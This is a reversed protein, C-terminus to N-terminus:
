IGSKNKPPLPAAPKGGLLVIEAGFRLRALYGAIHAMELVRAESRFERSRIRQLIEDDADDDALVERIDDLISLFMRRDAKVEASQALRAFLEVHHQGSVEYELLRPRRSCIYAKDRLFAIYHDADDPLPGIVAAPIFVSWEVVKRNLYCWDLQHTQHFHPAAYYVNRGVRQLDLLLAHQRSFRRPRIHMRYYCGRFWPWEAASRRGMFDALKFQLFVPAVPYPLMVDFGGGSQGEQYLSPFLPAATLNTALEETLAYGYSFESILPKM